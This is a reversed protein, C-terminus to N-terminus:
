GESADSQSASVLMVYGAGECTALLASEAEEREAFSWRSVSGLEKEYGALRQFNEVLIEVSDLLKVYHPPEILKSNLGGTYLNSIADRKWFDRRKEHIVALVVDRRERLWSELALYRELYEKEVSEHFFFATRNGLWKRVFRKAFSRHDNVCDALWLIAAENEGIELRLRTGLACIRMSLVQYSTALEINAPSVDADILLRLDEVLQLRANGMKADVVAFARQINEPNDFRTANEAQDLAALLEVRRDRQFEVSVRDYIRQLEAEHARIGAIHEIIAFGSMSLNLRPTVSALLRGLALHGQGSQVAVRELLSSAAEAGQGVQGIQRLQAVPLGDGSFQIVGGLREMAGDSLGAEIFVPIEAYVAVDGTEGEPACVIETAGDAQAAVCTVSVLALMITTLLRHFM